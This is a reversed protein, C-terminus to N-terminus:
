DVGLHAAAFDLFEALDAPLRLLEQFDSHGPQVEAGAGIVADEFDAPRDGIQGAFGVDAGGVDGLGDM